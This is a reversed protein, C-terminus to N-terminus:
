TSSYDGIKLFSALQLLQNLLWLYADQPCRLLNETSEPEVPLQKKTNM